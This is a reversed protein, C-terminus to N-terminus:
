GRRHRAGTWDGADGGFLAMGIAAASTTNGIGMEGTVLLDAQASVADWGTRLAAIVGAEDM